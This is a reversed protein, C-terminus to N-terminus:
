ENADAGELQNKILDLLETESYETDDYQSIYKRDLFNKIWRPTIWVLLSGISYFAAVSATLGFVIYSGIPESSGFPVGLPQFLSIFPQFAFIFTIISFANYRFKIWPRINESKLKKYAGYSSFSAWNFVLIRQLIVAIRYIIYNTTTHLPTDFIASNIITVISILIAFGLILSPVYTRRLKKIVMAKRERYFCKNIFVVILILACAVLSIEIIKLVALVRGLTQSLALLLFHAGM